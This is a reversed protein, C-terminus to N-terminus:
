KAQRLALAIKVERVDPPVATVKVFLDFRGLDERCAM